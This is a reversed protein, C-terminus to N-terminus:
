VGPPKPPLASPNLAAITARLQQAAEVADKNSVENELVSLVDNVTGTEVQHQQLWATLASDYNSGNPLTKIFERITEVSQALTVGVQKNKSSRFWAWLAAAAGIAGSAITGYGPILAAGAQADKVGPGPTYVYQPQLNTTVVQPGGAVPTNTAIVTIYNTQVAFLASEVKTPPAGNHFATTCSVAVFCVVIFLISLKPIKM